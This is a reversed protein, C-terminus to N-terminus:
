TLEVVRGERAAQDAALVVRLSAVADTLHDTLDLDDQIARLLFEQERRCLGDHDPEDATDIWEDPRAFEDDANREARHVRLSNTSTHAGVDASGGGREGARDVISV